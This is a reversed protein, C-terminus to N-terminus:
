EYRLANLASIKTARRAPYLGTLVGVLFSLIIILFSFDVPIEIINLWEAGNNIALISLLIELIKGLIFGLVIGLIGGMTGMLMSEALFSDRIESSRMGMAKLLGIERTRELLSVTLTNFMGLSAVLLAVTGLLALLTRATSFLNNIQAVTDVVSTTSFGQSEVLDRVARLKEEATTVIKVQSYNKIGLSKLHIFPVYFIPTSDDPTVGIIKYETPTSEIRDQEDSLIKGSAIFAVKFTLNLANEEKINLVKLFAKNVVAERDNIEAPLVIKSVEYQEGTNSEGEVEIWDGVLVEDKNKQAETSDEFYNSTIVEYLAETENSKFSKGIVPSIASQELYQQTVGYVAMDTSSNNFNVKGVVSIQPLVMEVNPFDRFVNLKDDNLFLNSKPTTSVDTQRMEELRAVKSIVLSQVGFGISVLFVIAGIGITMGGITVMTRSKKAKMNAVALEILEIRSITDDPAGDLKILLNNFSTELNSFLRIKSSLASILRLIVYAWILFLYIIVQLSGKILNFAFKILNWPLMLIRKM